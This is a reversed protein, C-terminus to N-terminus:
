VVHECSQRIKKMKTLPLTVVLLGHSRSTRTRRLLDNSGCVEGVRDKRETRLCQTVKKDMGDKKKM